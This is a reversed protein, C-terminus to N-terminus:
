IRSGCVPGIGAAISKPDTLVASCVCCVGFELGFAKAEDLSMRDEPTIKFMASCDYEFRVGYEDQVLRKGYVGDHGRAKQVRYIVGKVKYMGPEVVVRERRKAEAARVKSASMLQDIIASADRTSLSATDQEPMELERALKKIFAVQRDTAPRIFTTTTM